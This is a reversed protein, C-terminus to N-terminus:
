RAVLVAIAKRAPDLPAESDPVQPHRLGLFYAMVLM